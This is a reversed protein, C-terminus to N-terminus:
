YGVVCLSFPMAVRSHAYLAQAVAVTRDYDRSETVKGSAKYRYSNPVALFLYEMEVMVLAQILDRYIANGMWARGAEIELGAKWDPHWADIQYQLAPQSNEGFFVPRMIKDEFKSGAEVDFGEAVLHPRLVALVENSTLGKQLHLTGITPENAQFQAILSPVFHPPAQTRPFTSFRITVVRGDM